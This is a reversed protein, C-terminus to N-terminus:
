EIALESVTQSSMESVRGPRTTGHQAPTEANKNTPKSTRKNRKNTQYGVRSRQAMKHGYRTNTHKDNESVFFRFLNVEEVQVLEEKRHVDVLYTCPELEYDVPTPLSTKIQLM